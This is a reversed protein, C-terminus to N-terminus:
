PDPCLPTVSAIAARHRALGGCGTQGVASGVCWTRAHFAPSCALATVALGAAAWCGQPHGIGPCRGRTPGRSGGCGRSLGCMLPVAYMDPFRELGKDSGHPKKLVFPPCFTRSHGSVWKTWCLLSGQCKFWTFLRALENGHNSHHVVEPDPGSAVATVVQWNPFPPLGRSDMLSVRSPPPPRRFAGPSPGNIAKEM